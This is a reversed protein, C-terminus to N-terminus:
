ALEIVAKVVEGTLVAKASVKLSTSGFMFTVNVGRKSTSIAVDGTQIDLTGICKVLPETTFFPMTSKATCYINISVVPESQCSPVVFETIDDDLAVTSGKEVFLLFCDQAYEDGDVLRIKFQTGDILERKQKPLCTLPKMISIGYTYRMVRSTITEPQLGYMVAGRQILSGAKHSIIVQVDSFAAQVM